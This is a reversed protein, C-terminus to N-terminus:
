SSTTMLHRSITLVMQSMEYREPSPSCFVLLECVGGVVSQSTPLTSANATVTELWQKYRVEAEGMNVEWDDQAAASRRVMLACQSKLCATVDCYPFPGLHQGYHRHVDWLCCPRSMALLFIFLCHTGLLAAVFPQASYLGLQM